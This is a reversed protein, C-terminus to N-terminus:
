RMDDKFLHQDAKGNGSPKGKGGSPSTPCGKNSCASLSIVALVSIVTLLSKLTKM